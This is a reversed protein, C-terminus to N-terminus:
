LGAINVRLINGKTKKGENSIFLEGTPSFAIGEAKYFESKSIPYRNKINGKADLVVIQCNKADTVYINGTLPHVQVESPMMTEEDNRIDAFVNHGFDIKYIPAPNLKKTELDFSYIGKYATSNSDHDKVALLLRNNKADYGLGEINNNETFDTKHESVKPKTSEFDAVEFLHGDSRVVYATKGVLTIGEYDGPGAFDVEREIKSTATNYIFITGREDQVCAFRNPSLYAIGSVERLVDPVEWKSIVKVDRSATEKAAKSKKGKDTANEWLAEPQLKESAESVLFFASLGLGVIGAAIKKM